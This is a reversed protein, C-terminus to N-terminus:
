LISVVVSVIVKIYSPFVRYKSVNPAALVAIADRMASVFKAFPFIKRLM